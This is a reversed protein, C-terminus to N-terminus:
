EGGVGFNKEHFARLQDLTAAKTLAIEEDLSLSHNPHGRPYLL